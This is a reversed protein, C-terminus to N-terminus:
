YNYELEEDSIYEDDIQSMEYEQDLNEFYDYDYNIFRFTKEYSEEGWDRIYDSKRQEHLKILNYLVDTPTVIKDYDSFYTKKGYKITVAKTIKNKEIKVWGPEVKEEEEVIPEVSIKKFINVKDVYNIKIEEKLVNQVIPMEKKINTKKISLQPFNEELTNKEQKYKEQKYKEQKYKEQKYKEQKNLQITEKQLKNYQVNSKKQKENYKNNKNIKENNYDDRLVDFRSNFKFFNKSM